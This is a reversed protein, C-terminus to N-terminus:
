IGREMRYACKKCIKDNAMQEKPKEEGCIECIAMYKKRYKESNM